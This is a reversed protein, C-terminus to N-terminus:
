SGGQLQYFREFSMSKRFRPMNCWRALQRTKYNITSSKTRLPQAFVSVNLAQLFEIRDIAEEIDNGVLCYVFLERKRLNVQTRLLTVARKVTEKQAQSDCALRICRIWKIKNFLIAVWYDILRADVGQNIDIRIGKAACIELQAIGHRHALINNDLM